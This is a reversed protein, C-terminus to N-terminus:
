LREWLATERLPMKSAPRTVRTMNFVRPRTAHRAVLTSMASVAMPARADLVTLFPTFLVFYLTRLKRHSTYIAGLVPAAFRPGPPPPQNTLENSPVGRRQGFLVYSTM